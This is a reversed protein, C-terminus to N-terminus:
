KFDVGMLGAYWNTGDFVFAILDIANPTTTVPLNGMSRKFGTLALTRGGTADQQFRLIFQTNKKPSAPLQATSLTLNGTAVVKFMANLLNASNVGVLPIPGAPVDGIEFTVGAIADPVKLNVQELVETEMINTVTSTFDGADITQGNARTLILHGQANLQGSVVSMGLIEEAREAAIGTFEAM